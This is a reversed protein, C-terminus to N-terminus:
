RPLSPGREDNMMGSGEKVPALIRVLAIANCCWM